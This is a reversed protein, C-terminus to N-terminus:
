SLGTHVRYAVKMTLSGAGTAFDQTACAVVVKTNLAASALNTALGGAQKIIQNAVPSTLFTAAVTASLALVGSADNGYYLGFAAGATFAATGFINEFVVSEIDILTGAGQAPIVVTPVTFLAKTQTNTLALTLSSGRGIAEWTGPDGAAICRWAPPMGLTPYVNLIIDGVMYPAAGTGTATPPGDGYMSRFGGDFVDVHPDLIM